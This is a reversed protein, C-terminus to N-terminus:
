YPVRVAQELIECAENPITVPEIVWYRYNRDQYVKESLEVVTEGNVHEVSESHFVGGPIYPVPVFRLGHTRFDALPSEYAVRGSTRYLVVKWTPARAILTTGNEKLVMKVADNTYYVDIHGLTLHSQILKFAQVTQSDPKAFVVPGAYIWASFIALLFRLLTQAM